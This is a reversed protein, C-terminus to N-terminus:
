FLTFHAGIGIYLDPKKNILGYGAGAQIGIGFRKIKTETMEKNIIRDKNYIEIFSLKPKYGEVIAKYDDTLYEKREINIPVYILTTDNIYYKITDISYVYEKKVVPLTDRVVREITITDSKIVVKESPSKNMLGGGMVIVIVILAIIVYDKLSM